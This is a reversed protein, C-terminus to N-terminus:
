DNYIKEICKIIMDYENKCHDKKNELSCKWFIDAIRKCRNINNTNLLEKELELTKKYEFISLYTM